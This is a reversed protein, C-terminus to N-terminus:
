KFIKQSLFLIGLMLPQHILYVWLTHRGLLSIVNNSLTFSFLSQKRAYFFRAAALGYLFLGFWPILPYYDSSIFPGSTIGLPFLFTLSTSINNVFRGLFLTLTGLLILIYRNLRMFLPALLMSASLFHLIGFKVGYLPNFLHTAFTIVLALGLVKLGRKLNSRSLSSSIGSIFIFLSGSLDGIFNNIGTEYPVNLQYFTNLDYILHFYIMLLLATGRLFDLEWIRKDSIQKQPM